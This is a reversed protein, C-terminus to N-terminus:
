RVPWEASPGDLLARCTSWSQPHFPFGVCTLTLLGSLLSMSGAKHRYILSRSIGFIEAFLDQTIITKFPLFRGTLRPARGLWVFSDASV